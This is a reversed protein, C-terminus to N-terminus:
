ARAVGGIIILVEGRVGVIRAMNERRVQHEDPPDTLTVDLTSTEPNVGALEMPTASNILVAKILAASPDYGASINKSGSNYWGERFYQRAIAANGAVVPTAM